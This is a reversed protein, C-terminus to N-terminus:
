GSVSMGELGKLGHNYGNNLTSTDYDYYCEPPRHTTMATPLSAYPLGPYGLIATDVASPDSMISAITFGASATVRGQLTQPHEM